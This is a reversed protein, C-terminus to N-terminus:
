GREGETGVASAIELATTDRRDFTISNAYQDHVWILDDHALKVRFMAGPPYSIRGGERMNVGSVPEAAMLWTGPESRLIRDTHELRTM